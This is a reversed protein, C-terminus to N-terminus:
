TYIILLTFLEPVSVLPCVIRIYWGVFVNREEDVFLSICLKEGDKVVFNHVDTGLLLRPLGVKNIEIPAARVFFLM